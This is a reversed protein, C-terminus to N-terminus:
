IRGAVFESMISPTDTSFGVVDLMGPDQPDAISFGNSVMGCVVSRANIGSVQRYRDLAQKPHVHGSWTESDTYIVFADIKREKTTAYLMPLACDTKSWRLNSVSRVADDLRQRRSLGLAELGGAFAVVECLPEAHLTVLAMAVSAERPSLPSGAVGGGGYYGGAMSPSVDLALLHSKGTSKVNDFALYFAEDLADIVDPIPTWTNRGRDGKGSAYTRQAILISMPHLRSEAIKEKNRLADLVLKRYDSSDLIGNRTMTALNRTLAMIPMDTDLMAGWVVVNSLHETKLAERPLRFERILRATEAPSSADKAQLYGRILRHTPPTPHWSDAYRTRLPEGTEKDFADESLDRRHNVNGSIFGYIDRVEDSSAKSHALRLLDRHEWGDRQRYKIAQLALKDPNKNYWNAVAWRLTRGWGRMTEVYAVFHYLHTGIRAVSPLAEAAARRTAKDSASIACALAFLAPDNRAAKGGDSVDVIEAVTRIGDEALCERVVNVNEKTLKQESAYYSGGESGLILFRRLRTWNDVAWAHGGASNPVQDARMPESQPTVRSGHQKLYSSM